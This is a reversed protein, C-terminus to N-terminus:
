LSDGRGIPELGKEFKEVFAQDDVTVFVSTQEDM